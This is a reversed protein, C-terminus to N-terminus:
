FGQIRPTLSGCFRSWFFYKRIWLVPKKTPDSDPDPDADFRKLYMDPDLLYFRLVFKILCEM